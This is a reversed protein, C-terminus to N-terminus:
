KSTDKDSNTILQTLIKTIAKETKDISKMTKDLSQLIKILNENNFLAQEQSLAPSFVAATQRTALPQQSTAPLSGAGAAAAPAPDPYLSQVLSEDVGAHFHMGQHKVINTNKSRVAHPTKTLFSRPDLKNAPNTAKETNRDITNLEAGVLSALSAVTFDEENYM